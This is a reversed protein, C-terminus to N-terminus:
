RKGGKKTHKKTRSEASALKRKTRAKAAFETARLEEIWPGSIVIPRYRGVVELKRSRSKEDWYSITPRGEPLILGRRTWYPERCPRSRYIHHTDGSAFDGAPQLKALLGASVPVRVAKRKM